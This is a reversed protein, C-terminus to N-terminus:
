LYSFPEGASVFTVPTDGVLRPLWKAMHKMGWEETREHGAVIMAKNLGLQNADNVYSCLTWETIDGCVVVDLNMRRMLEMPMEERGLGLSGGGVLIGVRRCLIKPDGVIRITPMCLKEKFFGALSFLSVPEIEYCHPARQGPIVKDKWGLEELLGEYIRDGQAMHMHDHYRWVTMGTSELLRRKASYVPDGALWDIGDMGTFYTPEHTVIMNSGIAYARRIVDATAMFTTVIGSVEADGDGAAITDCTRELRREGCSDALIAEIVEKAKM